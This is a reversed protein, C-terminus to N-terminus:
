LGRKISIEVKARSSDQTKLTVKLVIKSDEVVQAHRNLLYMEGEKVVSLVGRHVPHGDYFVHVRDVTTAANGLDDFRLLFQGPREIYKSLDVDFAAMGRKFMEPAITHCRQWRSGKEQARFLQWEKIAPYHNARLMHLRWYRGTAPEFRRSYSAGMRTGKFAVKWAGDPRSRYELQFEETRNWPENIATENITHERGLDLEVWCEYPAQTRESVGWWTGAHGDCIKGAVYPASHEDSATARANRSVADRRHAAEYLYANDGEVFCVRFDRVIPENVNKTVRLTVTTVEVPEFMVIRKRGVATGNNLEAWNGDATRAEVVFERIRHGHRYDEVITFQNIRTPKDFRITHVPGRGSTAALPNSFRRELERGLQEYLKMDAEPILGDTNPTSNLLFTAGRGVSQYYLKVLHGLSKRKKEKGPSWFWHHDYLTTDCELGAWADGDPDNWAPYPAYGAETGVWRLNAHPGQLYVVRDGVYKGFVDGLPVYCSGDFWLEIITDSHRSLVETWQTRLVKNYAEQKAPDSTRGGSGIRAGWQDDGPYIYMGLKLGHRKCADAVEAVLDGKGNRWAINKVSYDTTQTQWWCFGGTHKAVFLIEKAGWSRAAQCWQNVDLKPLKMHKLDTTHNDYERGQWTCPDLCVFMIREQEHYAYQAASPQALRVEREAEQEPRGSPVTKPPEKGPTAAGALSMASLSAVLLLSRWKMQKEKKNLGREESM